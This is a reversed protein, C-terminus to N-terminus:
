LRSISTSTTSHPITVSTTCVRTTKTCKCIMHYRETMDLELDGHDWAVVLITGGLKRAVGSSGLSRLTDDVGWNKFDLAPGEVRSNTWGWKRLDATTSFESAATDCSPRFLSGAEKDSGRMAKLFNEGKCRCNEWMDDGASPPLSVDPVTAPPPPSDDPPAAVATDTGNFAAPDLYFPSHNQQRRAIQPHLGLTVAVLTSLVITPLKM